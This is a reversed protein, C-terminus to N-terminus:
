AAGCVITYEGEEEFDVEASLVKLNSIGASALVKRKEFKRVLKGQERSVMWGTINNGQFSSGSDETQTLALYGPTPTNVTLKFQPM